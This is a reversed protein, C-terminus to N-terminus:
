SDEFDLDEYEYDYSDALYEERKRKVEFPCEYDEDLTTLYRDLDVMVPDQDGMANAEM